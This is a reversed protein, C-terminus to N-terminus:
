IKMLVVPEYGPAAHDGIEACDGEKGFPPLRFCNEVGQLCFRGSVIM